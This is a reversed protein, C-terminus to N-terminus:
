GGYLKAIDRGGSLLASGARMMGSSRAQSARALAITREAEFGSARAATNNETLRANFEGEEALEEQILLASGDGLDSGKGAILARQTGETRKNKERLQGAQLVGIQREREAQRRALEAQMQGQQAAGAASAMSTAASAATSVATMIAIQTTTLAM